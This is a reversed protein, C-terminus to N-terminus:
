EWLMSGSWLEHLADEFTYSPLILIVLVYGMDRMRIAILYDVLAFLTRTLIQVAACCLELIGSIICLV